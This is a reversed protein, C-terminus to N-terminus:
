LLSQWFRAWYESVKQSLPRDGWTAPDIQQADRLDEEFHDHMQQATASGLVVADVEDNFLVSRHDFNSSGIISWVGDVVVTKSHLVVDHIEFIKVGAELLDSYRSHAVDNALESDSRDPLLLRVEVGRRAAEILDEMEDHTPVFYAATLEISKEANRIATLVTVYYRPIADDPSSGVIRVVESGKQPVTPFFAADQLPQGDQERWHDLFLTQLRAVVPGEIEIDTDRWPTAEDGPPSGSKGIPNRQYKTSLNVGGVIATAGDVILIKRHDRDNPSYGTRSELPDLPNFELMNIGAAKLRNFLEVPTDGSGYSDYIVNVAVGQRRKEILLDSLRQGDNEIDELIYYELNVHTKAQRIADFMAPFTERGDRLIRTRNGAVLPTEAVAEEVAAHRQLLGADGPATSLQTLIAKSQRATLPGRPGVVHADPAGDSSQAIMPEVDPVSACGALTAFAVIISLGTAARLRPM